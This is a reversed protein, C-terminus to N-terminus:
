IPNNLFKNLVNKDYCSVFHHSKVDNVQILIIIVLPDFVLITGNM